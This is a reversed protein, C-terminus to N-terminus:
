VLTVVAICPQAFSDYRSMEQGYTIISYLATYPNLMTLMPQPRQGLFGSLLADFFWTGVFLLGGITTARTAARTTSASSASVGMGLASFTLVCAVSLLLVGLIHVHNFGADCRWESPACLLLLLFPAAILTERLLPLVVAAYKGRVLRASGIPTSLLTEWTQLDRERAISGAGGILARSCLYLVQLYISVLACGAAMQSFPTNRIFCMAVLLPVVWIALLGCESLRKWWAVRKSRAVRAQRERFVIPNDLLM